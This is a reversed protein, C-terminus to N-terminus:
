CCRRQWDMTLYDDELAGAETSSGGSDYLAGSLGKRRIQPLRPLRPVRLFRPRGNAGM